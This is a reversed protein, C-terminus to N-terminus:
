REVMNELPEGALLHRVNREILKDGGLPRGGAIHPTIVIGPADWLPSEPPLPEKSAVDLGAGALAGSRLADVLADEDVTAGRGVNVVMAHSPLAGIVDADLAHKTEPTSPLINVLIDTTPLEDLLGETAIVPYGHRTGASRAVGTVEAGLATLIPALTAAISGFGWILVRAGLLSMLQGDPRVAPSRFESKDWLHAAQRELLLPIRRVLTLMLAVTHEAVTANHLSAGSTVITEPRLPAALVGDPGARLSQIWRMNVLHPVNENLWPRSCDWEVLAEADYHESSLPRDVDFPVASVGDPLDLSLEVHAPVLIKM